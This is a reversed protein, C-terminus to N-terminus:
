VRWDGIGDWWFELVRPRARLAMPKPARYFYQGRLAFRFVYYNLQMCRLGGKASLMKGVAQQKEKETDQGVAEWMRRFADYDFHQMDFGCGHLGAHLPEETTDLLGAHLADEAWQTVEAKGPCPHRSVFLRLQRNEMEAQPANELSLTAIDSDPEESEPSSSGEESCEGLSAALRDWKSYDIPM